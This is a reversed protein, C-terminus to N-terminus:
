PPDIACGSDERCTKRDSAADPKGDVRCDTDARDAIDCKKRKGQHQQAHSPLRWPGRKALGHGLDSLPSRAM